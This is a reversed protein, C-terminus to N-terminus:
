VRDIRRTLGLRGSRRVLTEFTQPAPPRHAGSHESHCDQGGVLIDTGKLGAAFQAILTAPPCLMVDARGGREGALREALSEAEKWAARSGNMKWNGAVLPRPQTM